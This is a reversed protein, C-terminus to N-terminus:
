LGLNQGADLRHLLRRLSESVAGAPAATIWAAGYGVLATQYRLKMYGQIGWSTGWSNRILWVKQTDDWGVILVEHDIDNPNCQSNPTGSFVGGPFDSSWGPNQNGTADTMSYSDWRKSIVACAIPGYRYIARKLADDTPIPQSGVTGGAAVYDWNVASYSRAIKATCLGKVEHYPYTYSDVLGERLLYVFVADHWGGAVGDYDPFACDLVEQESIDVAVSGDDGVANQHNAILWASEYAEVAAFAWCSGCMGQSKIPTVRGQSRWDFSPPPSFNGFLRPNVRTMAASFTSDARLASTVRASQVKQLRLRRRLDKPVQAGRWHIAMHRHDLPVAGAEKIPWPSVVCAAISGCIATRRDVMKLAKM